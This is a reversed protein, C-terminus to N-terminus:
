GLQKLRITVLFTTDPQVDRNETFSRDVGAEIVICENEYLLGAGYSITGAGTLDERWNGTAGWGDGFDVIASTFLQEREETTDVVLNPDDKLRVYTASVRLWEPGATFGLESRRLAFSENDIRFRYLLDLYENPSVLVRGVFHSFHADLGTGPSFTDDVRARYVQGVLVETRGGNAGFAGLRIGYNIRPGGEVRDIGPFRNESFLNIDDFEFDQSDENPIEAPNGGNPSIVGMIIPEVVQQVSGSQRVFPYRWELSAVPWIRGEFGNVDPQGNGVALDNVHYGDGRVSARLTFLQGDDSLYPLEYGAGVSVRQTDTGDQRTLALASADLTFFSGDAEPNTVLQYELWPLVVPIQDQDDSARLGQFVYSSASAYSRNRFGEVYVDSTLTDVNDFNYRDLFTDDSSRYLDFGYRWTPDYDWQGDGRIFYRFENGDLEQGTNDRATTYTLAGDLEYGGAGTLARYEGLFVPAEKTLFMTTLTADRNPALNFYYPVNLILGLNSNSGYSPALFGSRRKVTPDPHRFYPSYGIPMGFVEFFTDYYEVDRTEQNHVIRVAKVQWLPAANPDDECLDCPSYVGKRMETVVGGTRRAGNAAVRTNEDLLIRIGSIVGSKLDGTLEVYDSFFVEGTPELLVINGTATVIDSNQNYSITDAQLIRGASAIEVNGSATVIQLAQDYRIEDAQLVVNDSLNGADLLTGGDDQALGGQPLWLLLAAVLGLLCRGHRRHTM